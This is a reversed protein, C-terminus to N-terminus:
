RYGSGHNAGGCSCDCSHGKANTCRADCAISDVTRGKIAHFDMNKACSPCSKGPIHRTNSGDPATFIQPGKSNKGDPYYYRTAALSFLVQITVACPKCRYTVPKELTTIKTEM